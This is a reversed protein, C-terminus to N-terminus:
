LRARLEEAKHPDLTALAEYQARAARGEGLSAYCVGLGYRVSPDNPAVLMARQFVDVADAHRNERMLLAAWSRLISLPEGSNDAARRWSALADETHGLKEFLRAFTELTEADSLGLNVAERCMTAAETSRGAKLYGFGLAARISADEPAGSVAQEWAAIAEGSRGLHMLALGLAYNALAHTPDHQLARQAAAAAEDYRRVRQLADAYRYYGEADDLLRVRMQLTAIAEDIRGLDVLAAGLSLYAEPSEGDIALAKEAHTLAQEPRGALRHCDALSAEDKAQPPPFRVAVSYARIAADHNGARAELDGLLRQAPALNPSIKVAQLAAVRADDGQGVEDYALALRQLIRANKPAHARANELGKVLVDLRGLGRAHTSLAAAADESEPAVELA